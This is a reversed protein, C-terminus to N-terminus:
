KPASSVEWLSRKPNMKVSNWRRLGVLSDEHGEMQFGKKFIGIHHQQSNDVYVVPTESNVLTLNESVVGNFLICPEEGIHGTKEIIAAPFCQNLARSQLKGKVYVGPGLLITHLIEIPTKNNGSFCKLGDFAGGKETIGFEVRKAKKQKESPCAQIEQVKQIYGDTRLEQIQTANDM